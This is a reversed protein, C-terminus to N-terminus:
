LKRVELKGGCRCRYADIKKMVCTFRQRPYERGCKRCKIVYRIVPADSGGESGADQEALGMEEFSSARKINYGYAKNMRAAYEKWIKGHDLCGPCAHLLEHAVVGRVRYDDWGLADIVFESIEITFGDDKKKCCGFRKRPRSNVVIEPCINRPVPIEQARAEDIIEKLITKEKAETTKKMDCRMQKGPLDPPTNGAAPHKVHFM